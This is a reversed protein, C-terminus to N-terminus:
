QKVLFDLYVEMSKCIEALQLITTANQYSEYDALFAHFYNADKTTDQKRLRCLQDLIGAITNKCRKNLYEITAM